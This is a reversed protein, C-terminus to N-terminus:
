FLKDKLSLLCHYERDVFLDKSLSDQKLLWYVESLLHRLLSYGYMEEMCKKFIQITMTGAKVFFSVMLPWAGPLQGAALHNQSGPKVM